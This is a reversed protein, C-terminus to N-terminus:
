PLGWAPFTIRALTGSGPKSKFELKGGHEEVIRASISLGIGTGGSERRTTFFPDTIKKLTESEMGCGEDQVEIIIKYENEDFKTRVFIGDKKTELAYCANQILNILVQEMRQLNGKIQLLNNDLEVNFHDTSKKVLNTTLRVAANISSNIDVIESMDISDQRSFTKLDDVIRKIRIASEM